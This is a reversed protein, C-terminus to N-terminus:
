THPCVVVCSRSPLQTIQGRKGVVKVKVPAVPQLVNGGGWRHENLAPSCSLVSPLFSLTLSVRFSKAATLCKM